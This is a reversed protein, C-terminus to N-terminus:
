LRPAVVVSGMYWLAWTGFCSFGSCHSAWVDCSSFLGWEGCGSFLGHLLSSGACGFFFSFIQTQYIVRKWQVCQKGSPMALFIQCKM